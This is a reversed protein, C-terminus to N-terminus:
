GRTASIMWLVKELWQINEDAINATPVDGAEGALRSIEQFDGLLQRFDNELGELVERATFYKKEEDRITANELYEKVTSYPKGGLQLIREALEDYQEAVYNYYDETVKHINFFQEGKVNWHYNHLKVYLVHLNAVTQNLKNVVGKSM